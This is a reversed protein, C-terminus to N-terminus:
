EEVGLESLEQEQKREDELKGEEVSVFDFVRICLVSFVWLSFFFFIVLLALSYFYM